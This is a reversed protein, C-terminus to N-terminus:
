FLCSEGEIHLFTGCGGPCHGTLAPLLGRAAAYLQHQFLAAKLASPRALDSPAHFYICVHSIRVPSRTKLAPYSTVKHHANRLYPKTINILLTLPLTSIEVEKM